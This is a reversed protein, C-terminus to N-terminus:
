AVLLGYRLGRESVVLQQRRFTSLVRALVTAGALLYDAREPSTPCMQRRQEPNAPLFRDIFGALNAATLRSQHVRDADWKQLGLTMASFTTVTGGVGVVTRPKLDWDVKALEIDVFRRLQALGAPEVMGVGLFRETLRVSGMELSKRQLVMEQEGLVLETSGGGLDVVLLPGPLALDNTVGMWTLRGEEEGTVIQVRLKLKRRVRALWTEANMARRAASTAVARIRWPEVGQQQCTRVFDALVAEAAAMRETAFLGRDGLGSGLGVVVAQDHLVSKDDGVITLLLSNSGIDIAARPM